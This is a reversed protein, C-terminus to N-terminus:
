SPTAVIIEAYINGGSTQLAWDDTEDSDSGLGHLLISEGPELSFYRNANSVNMLVRLKETSEAITKAADEYGSHKIYIFLLGSIGGAIAAASGTAVVSKASSYAIDHDSDVLKMDITSGLGAALTEKSAVDHANFDGSAAIRVYPTSATAVKLRTENAM